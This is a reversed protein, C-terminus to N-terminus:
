YFDELLYGKGKVVWNNESQRNKSKHTHTPHPLSLSLSFLFFGQACRSFNQLSSDKSNREM